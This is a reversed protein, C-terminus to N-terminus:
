GAPPLLRLSGILHSIGPLPIRVDTRLDIPDFNCVVDRHGSLDLVSRGVYRTTALVAPLLQGEFRVAPELEVVLGEHSGVRVGRISGPLRGTGVQTEFEWPDSVLVEVRAGVSWGEDDRRM